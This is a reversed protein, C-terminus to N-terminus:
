VQSIHEDPHPEHHLSPDIEMNMDTNNHHAPAKKVVSQAPEKKVVPKAIPTARTPTVPAPATPEQTQRASPNIKQEVSKLIEFFDRGLNFQHTLRKNPANVLLV